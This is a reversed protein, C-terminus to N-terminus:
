PHFDEMQAPDGMLQCVIQSFDPNVFATPQEWHQRSQFLSIKAVKHCSILAPRGKLKLM